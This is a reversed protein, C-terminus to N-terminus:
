VAKAFGGTLLGRQVYQTIDDCNYSVQTPTVVWIQLQPMSWEQLFEGIQFRMRFVVSSMSLSDRDFCWTKELTM